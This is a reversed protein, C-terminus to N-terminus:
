FGAYHKNVEHKNKKQHAYLREGSYWVAREIAVEVVKAVWKLLRPYRVAIEFCEPCEPIKGQMSLKDYETGCLDCNTM